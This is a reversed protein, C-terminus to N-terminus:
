TSSGSDYSSGTGCKDSSDYSQTPTPDCAPAPTNDIIMVQPQAPQSAVYPNGVARDIHYINNPYWSYAPSTLINDDHVYITQQQSLRNSYIVSQQAAAAKAAEQKAKRRKFFGFM